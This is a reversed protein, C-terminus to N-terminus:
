LEFQLKGWSAEMTQFRRLVLFIGFEKTCTCRKSSKIQDPFLKHEECIQLFQAPTVGVREEFKRPDWEHWPETIAAGQFQDSTKGAPDMDWSRRHDLCVQMAPIVPSTDWLEQLLELCQAPALQGIRVMDLLFAAHDEDDEKMSSIRDRLRTYNHTPLRGREAKTLM